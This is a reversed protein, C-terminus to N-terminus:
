YISTFNESRNAVGRTHLFYRIGCALNVGFFQEENVQTILLWIIKYIFSLPLRVLIKVFGIPIKFRIAFCFLLYANIYDRKKGRYFKPKYLQTSLSSIQSFEDNKLLKKKKAYKYLDSNPLPYIMNIRSYDAKIQKNLKITKYVDDITEDPLAMVNFTMLKIEYKSLRKAAEIIQEKNIDKGLVENRIKCSGSELSMAVAHCGANSLAQVINNTLYDPRVNCTFRINIKEKYLKLFKFIRDFYDPHVFLDDSFHVSTLNYKNRVALIEDIVREPSKRRYFNHPNNYVNSIANNWCANCLQKCGRSTLFRKSNINGLFPYKYYITRDPLPLTDLNDILPRLSNVFIKGNNKYGINKINQYSKKEEIAKALEAIAYEGEGRCIFDCNDNALVTKPYFTAAAGWILIYSPFKKKLEAALNFYWNKDLIPCPLVILKPNFDNIKKFFDKEEKEIFLDLRHGKSKLYAVIDSIVFSENIGNNQIFLINM